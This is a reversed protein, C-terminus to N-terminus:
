ATCRAAREEVDLDSHSTAMQHRYHTINGDSALIVGSGPQHVAIIAGGSSTVDYCSIPQSIEALNM